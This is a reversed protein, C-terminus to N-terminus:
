LINYLTDLHGALSAPFDTFMGDVKQRLYFSFANYVDQEFDWALFRDENQLTWVHVQAVGTV